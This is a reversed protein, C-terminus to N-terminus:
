LGFFDEPEKKPEEARYRAMIEAEIEDRPRGYKQQSLKKLTEAVERNGEFPPHTAINFPETPKGFALMRVYANYNDISRIDRAGFVPM